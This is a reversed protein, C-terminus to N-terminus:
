IFMIVCVEALNPFYDTVGAPSSIDLSQPVPRYSPSMTDRTHNGAHNSINSNTSKRIILQAPAANVFLLGVSM